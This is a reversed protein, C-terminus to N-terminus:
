GLQQIQFTAMSPRILIGPLQCRAGSVKNRGPFGEQRHVLRFLAARLPASSLCTSGGNGGRPLQGWKFSRAQLTLRRLSCRSIRCPHLGSWPFGGFTDLASELPRRSKVLTSQLRPDELIRVDLGVCDCLRCIGLFSLGGVGGFGGLPPRDQKSLRAIIWV